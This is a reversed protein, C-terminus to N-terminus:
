HQGVPAKDRGADMLMKLIRASGSANPSWPFFWPTRDHVREGVYNEDTVSLSLCADLAQRALDACGVRLWGVSWQYECWTTYWVHDRLEPRPSTHRMYLGNGDAIGEDLLWRRLRLMEDATLYGGEVFAGPHLYFFHADRFAKEGRGDPALPIFFVERGASAARWRDLTKGIVSRYDNWEARIEDAEKVGFRVATEALVGLAHENVLDTMGWHQFRKKSDTSKLPPFLGAVLGDGGRATEARKARIWRFGALAAPYHRRWCDADGALRCHRSFAEIAYATESAWDNAFPGIRGDEGAFRMLFDVAMRAYEAYGLRDLAEVVHITEGPWVYRQLGGQRPLVFDGETPRAFCQLIQVVQSQVFPTRDAVRALTREWDSRVANRTAAFDPKVLDGKGVTFDLVRREGPSLVLSMRLAGAEADWTAGGGCAVFRDGDRLLGDGRDVFTSKLARWDRVKPTYIEYIDPAGFVLDKEPAARVLLGVQRELPVSGRNEFVLRAQVTPMRGFPACAELTVELGSERWRQGHLPVGNAEGLMAAEAPDFPEDAEGRVLWVGHALQDRYPMSKWDDRHVCEGFTIKGERFFVLLRESLPGQLYRRTTMPRSPFVTGGSAQPDAVCAVALLILSLM